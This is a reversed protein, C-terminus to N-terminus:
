KVFISYGLSNIKGIPTAVGNKWYTAITADVESTYGVVYVDGNLVFFSRSFSRENTVLNVATGNKWYTALANGSAAYQIGAIYIDTGVIYIAYAQGGNPGKPLYNIVGNKWYVLEAAGTINDTISGVVYVDNGSISIANALLGEAHALETAGGNKWYVLNSGQSDAEYGCLYVNSGSVFMGNVGSASGAIIAAIGNKWYVAGINNGGVYVDNGSVSIQILM